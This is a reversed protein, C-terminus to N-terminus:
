ERRVKALYEERTVVNKELLIEFLVRLAKVQQTLHQEVTAVRASLEEIRQALLVDQAGFPRTFGADGNIAAVPPPPAPAPPPPPPANLTMPAGSSSTFDYTAPTPSTSRSAAKAAEGLQEGYYFRRIARDIASSGAVSWTVRMGTHFELERLADGNVPDSTAVRLVKQKEDGGLPFVGYREAIDVRLWKVVDDPLELLSRLSIPQLNLQRSLAAVMSAEDVFGMEVLTRGLRGGWKRQEALAAKLQLEDILGSTLLIEGLRRKKASSQTTM